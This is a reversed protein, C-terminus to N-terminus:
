RPINLKDKVMSPITIPDSGQLQEQLADCVSMHEIAAEESELLLEKGCFMCRCVRKETTTEKAVVSEQVEDLKQKQCSQKHQKWDLKQHEQCCYNVVRCSGCRFKGTQDCDKWQCKNENMM